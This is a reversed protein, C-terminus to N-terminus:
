EFHSPCLEDALARKYKKAMVDYPLEAFADAPGEVRWIDIIGPMSHDVSSRCLKDGWKVFWNQLLDQQFHSPSLAIVTKQIKESKLDKSEEKIIAGAECLIKSM